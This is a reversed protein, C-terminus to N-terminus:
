LVSDKPYSGIQAYMDRVDHRLRRVQGGDGDAADDHRMQSPINGNQHPVAPGAVTAHRRREPDRSATDDSSAAAVSAAAATTTAAADFDEDDADRYVPFHDGKMTEVLTGIFNEQVRKDDTNGDVQPPLRFFVILVVSTIIHYYLPFLDFRFSTTLNNRKLILKSVDRRAWHSLIATNNQDATRSM